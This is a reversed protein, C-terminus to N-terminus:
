HPDLMKMPFSSWMEAESTVEMDLFYGFIRDKLKTSHIHGVVDTGRQKLRTSYLNVLDTLKFVLAVLEDM